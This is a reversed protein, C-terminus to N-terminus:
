ELKKNNWDLLLINWEDTLDRFTHIIKFGVRLHARMSRLNRTSVSTICCDYDRSYTDKHKQYLGDFIGLGRYAEDVCIQGMVYYRCRPLPMGKYYLTELMEFMPILVPIEDRFKKTMALCYGIVKDDAKAIIGPEDLNMKKLIKFDHQVTLFGEAKLEEHTLNQLLNKKQLEIIGLLDNDSKALSFEIM